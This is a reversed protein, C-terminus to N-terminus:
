YLSVRGSADVSFGTDSDPAVDLPRIDLHMHLKDPAPGHHPASSMRAGYKTNITAQLTADNYVIQWAFKGWYPNGAEAVANVADVFQEAKAVAYFGRADEAIVPFLDAAYEAFKGHRPYTGAAFRVSSTTALEGLFWVMETAFRHFSEANFVSREAGALRTAISARRAVVEASTGTRVPEIRDFDAEDVPLPTARGAVPLLVSTKGGAAARAPSDSTVRFVPPGKTRFAVFEDLEAAVAARNARADRETKKEGASGGALADDLLQQQAIQKVPHGNADFRTEFSQRFATIDTRNRDFEARAVDAQTQGPQLPALQIDWAGPGSAKLVKYYELMAFAPVLDAPAAPPPKLKKMTAGDAFLNAATVGTVTAGGALARQTVIWDLIVGANAFLAVESTLKERFVDGPSRNQAPPATTKATGWTTPQRALLAPGAGPPRRGSIREGGAPLGGGLNQVVHVLEHALLRRGADTQPAYGAGLAVERGVTFAQAHVAAASEAAAADAHVRVGDLPRGFRPELFALAAADLPGAAPVPWAAAPAAAVIRDAVRDAEREFGDDAALVPVDAYRWRPGAAAPREPVPAVTAARPPGAPRAARAVRPLLERPSPPRGSSM